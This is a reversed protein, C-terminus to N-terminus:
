AGAIALRPERVVSGEVVRNMADIAQDMTIDAVNHSPAQLLEYHVGWPHWRAADSKGFLCAIPKGLAAAIHMAGGDSLFMYDCVAVGGILERLANTPWPLVACGSVAELIRKAKGDDGPHTPSDEPGPAWFLVFSARHRLALMQMLKTYRDEPWRQSPKRASIHIGIVPGSGRRMAAIASRARAVETPHPVVKLPPPPGEIGLAGALRFVDEVESMQSQAVPVIVDLKGRPDSDAAFGVLKRAGAWRAFVVSRRQFQPTAILAYDLGKARLKLAIRVREAIVGVRSIQRHKAKRYALVEDVDRNGELVPANYTNALVGIWSKPYRLRLAAILPTTCVLDGINDRRIVLIRPQASM